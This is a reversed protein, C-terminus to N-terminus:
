AVMNKYSDCFYEFFNTKLAICIKLLRATDISSRNNFINYVNSRKCHIKDALWQVSRGQEELKNRVLRGIYAENQPLIYCIRSTTYETKYIMTDYIESFYMFFNTKLALSIRLLQATDISTRKYIDYVNRRKCHIKEALWTASRGDEKLTKRILEGINNKDRTM